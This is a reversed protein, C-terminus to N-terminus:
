IKYSLMIKIGVPFNAIIDLLATQTTLESSNSVTSLQVNKERHVQTLSHEYPKHEQFARSRQFATIMHSHSVALPMQKQGVPTKYLVVLTQTECVTSHTNHASYHADLGSSRLLCTTRCRHFQRGQELALSVLPFNRLDAM